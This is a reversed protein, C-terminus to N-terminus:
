VSKDEKIGQEVHNKLWNSVFVIKDAVKSAEIYFSNLGSTNKREDCENIRHVVAANPNVYNLYVSIWTTLHLLLHNM